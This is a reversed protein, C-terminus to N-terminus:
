YSEYLHSVCAGCVVRGVTACTTRALGEDMCARPTADAEDKNMKQCISKQMALCKTSPSVQTISARFLHLEGTNAKRKLTYVIKSM